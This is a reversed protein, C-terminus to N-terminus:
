RRTYLFIVRREHDAVAFHRELKEASVYTMGNITKNETLPVSVGTSMAHIYPRGEYVYGSYESRRWGTVAATQNSEIIRSLFHRDNAVKKYAELMGEERSVSFDEDGTKIDAYVVAKVRPYKDRISVYLATLAEAAEPVRYTFDHAAFHSIGVPALMIPKDLHYKLYFDDLMGPIDPAYGDGGWEAMVRLGVWDVAADGPYHRDYGPDTLWVFAASPAYEMFVARAIRFRTIYLEIDSERTIRAFPEFAVFVPINFSGLWKAFRITEPTLLPNEGLRLLILPTGQAAICQWIKTAPYEDELSMEITYVAHKKEVRREFTKKSNETDLTVAGIYCGVAPEHKAWKIDDTEYLVTYPIYKYPDATEILFPPEVLSVNEAVEAMPPAALIAPIEMVREVMACGSLLLTFFIVALKL